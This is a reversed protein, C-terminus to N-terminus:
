ELLVVAKDEDIEAGGRGSLKYWALITNVKNNGGEAAHLAQKYQEEESLKSSSRRKAESM